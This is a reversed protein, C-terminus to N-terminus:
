AFVIAENFDSYGAQFSGKSIWYQGRIPDNILVSSPSVGVVTYVHSAQAPGIFPIWQGDFSLYDRRPHWAWDWTSFAVVPHGAIVRAYITAASMSGYQIIRAGHARAIRVLPPYYTGYGTFNSESGNVNGVFTEYPNGWRVRGSSDVFESRRDSGLEALIQDQSLNIGQHTLAMSTAAEECSLPHDQYYFTVGSVIHTQSLAVNVANDAAGAVQNLDGTIRDFEAVTAANSYAARNADIRAQLSALDIGYLSAVNLEDGAHGFAQQAVTAADLRGQLDKKVNVLTRTLFEARALRDLPDLRTYDDARTMTAPGPDDRIALTKAHLVQAAVAAVASAISRDIPVLRAELKWDAGLAAFDAPTTALALADRRAKREVWLETGLATHLDQDAVVADARYRALDRAYISASASQWQDVIGSAGPWWFVTGVGLFKVKQSYVWEQELVALESDSIGEARLVAWHQHAAAARAQLDFAIKGDLVGGGGATAALMAVTLAIAIGRSTLATDPSWLRRFRPARPRKGPPEPADTPEASPETPTPREVAIM